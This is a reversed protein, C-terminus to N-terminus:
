VTNLNDLHSQNNYLSTKNFRDTITLLFYQESSSQSIFYDIGHIFSNKLNNETKIKNIFWKSQIARLVIVSNNTMIDNFISMRYLKDFIFEYPLIIEMRNYLKTLVTDKRNYMETITELFTGIPYIVHIKSNIWDQKLLLDIFDEVKDIIIGEMIKNYIGVSIISLILVSALFWTSAVIREEDGRLKISLHDSLILASFEWFTKLFKNISKYKLLFFLSILIISIFISYYINIDLCNLYSM